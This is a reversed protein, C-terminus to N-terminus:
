TILHTRLCDECFIHDCDTLAIGEEELDLDDSCCIECEFTKRSKRVKELWGKLYLNIEKLQVGEKNEKCFICSFCNGMDGTQKADLQQNTISSSKVKNINSNSKKSLDIRKKINRMFFLNEKVLSTSFCFNYEIALCMTSMSHGCTSV